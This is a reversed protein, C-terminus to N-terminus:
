SLLAALGPEIKDIGGRLNVLMALGMRHGLVAPMSSFVDLGQLGRLPGQNVRKKPGSPREAWNYKGIGAVALINDDTCATAPNKMEENLLRLVMGHNALYSTPIIPRSDPLLANYHVAACHSWIKFLKRNSM